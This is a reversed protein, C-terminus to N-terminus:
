EDAGHELHREIPTHTIKEGTAAALVRASGTSNNYSEAFRQWKEAADKDLTALLDCVRCKRQRRLESAILDDISVTM